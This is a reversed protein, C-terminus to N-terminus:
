TPTVWSFPCLIRDTSEVVKYCKRKRENKNEKTEFDDDYIVM